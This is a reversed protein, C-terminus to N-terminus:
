LYEGFDESRRRNRFYERGTYLGRFFCERIKRKKRNERGTTPDRVKFAMAMEARNTAMDSFALIRDGSFTRVRFVISRAFMGALRVVLLLTADGADM